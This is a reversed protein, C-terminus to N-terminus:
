SRSSTLQHQVAEDTHCVGSAVIKVLIENGKPKDLEIERIVFPASKERTVAAIIKIPIEGRM